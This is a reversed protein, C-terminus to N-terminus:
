LSRARIVSRTTDEWFLLQPSWWWGRAKNKVRDSCLSMILIQDTANMREEVESGSVKFSEEDKDDALSHKRKRQYPAIQGWEDRPARLAFSGMCLQIQNQSFNTLKRLVTGPWSSPSPIACPQRDSRWDGRVSCIINWISISAAVKVRNLASTSYSHKILNTKEAHVSYWPDLPAEIWYKLIRTVPNKKKAKSLFVCLVHAVATFSKPTDLKCKKFVLVTWALSHKKMLM